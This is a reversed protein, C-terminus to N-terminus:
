IDTGLETVTTVTTWGLGKRRELCSVRFHFLFGLRLFNSFIIL